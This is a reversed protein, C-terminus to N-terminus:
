ERLTKGTLALFVTNLSPRDVTISTFRVHEAHLADLLPALPTDKELSVELFPEHYEVKRVRELSELKALLGPTLADVKIRATELTMVRDKLEDQTGEAIIKGEDVIAVRDCLLEVEEMYHSTYIITAGRRNLERINELITNRSQPDIAVTPEDM